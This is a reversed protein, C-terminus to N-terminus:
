RRALRPDWTPDPYTPPCGVEPADPRLEYHWPENDYVRCLGYSAGHDTLWAQADSGGIDVADGSVHPSTDPTAVWRAAEEESGHEAIAERLLQAQYSRSRWGSNVQLVVGDRGAETGAEQLAGRLDPDLRAIAPYHDDFVTAGDPVDGDATTRGNGRDAGMDLDLGLSSASPFPKLLVLALLASLAFAAVLAFRGVPQSFM